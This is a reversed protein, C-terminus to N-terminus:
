HRCGHRLGAGRALVFSARPPRGTTSDCVKRVSSCDRMCTPRAFYACCYGSVSWSTNSGFSSSPSINKVFM